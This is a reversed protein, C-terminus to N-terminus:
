STFQMVGSLLEKAREYSLPRRGKAKAYNCHYRIQSNTVKTSPDLARCKDIYEVIIRYAEDVDLKRVNVLYPALVLYVVRQRVDPIPHQLLKEIWDQTKPSRGLDLTEKFGKLERSFSIINQPIERRPIPLGQKIKASMPNVLIGCVEYKALRVMGKSLRQNVLQYEQLNPTCKLFTFIDTTFEKKHDLKIKLEDAIRLINPEKDITMAASSRKAEALAYREIIYYPLTSVLLRAYAYSAISEKQGFGLEKFEIKGKELAEEVRSKALQLCERSDLDHMRKVIGKAEESFPYKYAFSTEESQQV